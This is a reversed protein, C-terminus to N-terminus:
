GPDRPQFILLSQANLFIFFHNKKSKFYTKSHIVGIIKTPQELNPYLIEFLTDVNFTRLKENKYCKHDRMKVNNTKSSNLSMMHMACSPLSTKKDNKKM